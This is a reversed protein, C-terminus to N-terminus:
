QAPAFIHDEKRFTRMDFITDGGTVPALFFPSSHCAVVTQAFPPLACRFSHNRRTGMFLPEWTSEHGRRDGTEGEPGERGDQAKPRKGAAPRAIEAPEFVRNLVSPM